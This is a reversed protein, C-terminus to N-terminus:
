LSRAISSDGEQSEFAEELPVTERKRIDELAAAVDKLLKPDNAIEAARQEEPKQRPRRLTAPRSMRGKRRVSM